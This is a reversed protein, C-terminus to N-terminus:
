FAVPLKVGKVVKLFYIYDDLHFLKFIYSTFTDEYCRDFIYNFQICQIPNKNIRIAVARVTEHLFPNDNEQM